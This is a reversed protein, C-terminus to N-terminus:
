LTCSRVMFSHPDNCNANVRLALESAHLLAQHEQTFGQEHVQVYYGLHDIEVIVFVTL